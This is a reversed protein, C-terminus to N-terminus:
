VHVLLYRTSIGGLPTAVVAGYYFRTDDTNREKGVNMALLKVTDILFLLITKM